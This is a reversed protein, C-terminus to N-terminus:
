TLLGRWLRALKAGNHASQFGNEVEARGHMGLSLLQGPSMELLVAIASALAAADGAPVLLGNLDPKVLEPIGAVDSAIVPRARAFAEMISVPLGEAHSPLVLFRCRDLKEKVQRESRWGLFRIQHELGRREVELELEQRCPGDGILEFMPSKGAARLAHAAELLVAHGKRRDLRAICVIPGEPNIPAPQDLFGGDVGMGIVSVNVERPAAALRVADAAWNSVAITADAASALTSLAHRHAAEFDEPGHVTVTWRPGGLCRTLMAVIASSQAFHVHLLRVGSEALREHLRCALMLYSFNGVKLPKLRLVARFAKALALPRSILTRILPRALVLVGGTALFETRRLEVDDREGALPQTSPRHAFRLVRIGADSVADIERRITTLSAEPYRNVLYAVVDM